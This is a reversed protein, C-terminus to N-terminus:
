RRTKKATEASYETPRGPALPKAGECANAPATVPLLLLTAAAAIMLFRM